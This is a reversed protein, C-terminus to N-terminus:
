YGQTFAILLLVIGIAVSLGATIMFLLVTTRHHPAVMRDVPTSDVTTSRVDFSDSETLIERDYASRRSPDRLVIWAENIAAM